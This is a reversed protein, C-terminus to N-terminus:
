IARKVLIDQTFKRRWMMIRSESSLSEEMGIGLGWNRVAILMLTGYDIGNEQRPFGVDVGTFSYHGGTILSLSSVMNSACTLM